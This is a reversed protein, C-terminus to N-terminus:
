RDRKNAHWHRLGAVISALAICCVGSWNCVSSILSVSLRDHEPLHHLLHFVHVCHYVYRVANLFQQQQKLQSCLTPCSTTTPEIESPTMLNKWKCLGGPRVAARTEVWVRFYILALFIEQPLLLPRLTLSVVQGGKCAPQRLIKSGWVGAVRLAQGSRYYSQQLKVKVTADM